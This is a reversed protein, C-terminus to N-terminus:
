QLLCPCQLPPSHALRLSRGTALVEAALPRLLGFVFGTVMRGRGVKGRNQSACCHRPLEKGPCLVEDTPVTRGGTQWAQRTAWGGARSKSIVHVRRTTPPSSSTHTRHLCELLSENLMFVGLFSWSLFNFLSLILHPSPVEKKITLPQSSLGSGM